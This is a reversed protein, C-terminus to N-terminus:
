LKVRTFLWFRFKRDDDANTGTVDYNTGNIQVKLGQEVEPIYYTKVKISESTNLGEYLNIDIDSIERYNFWLSGVASFFRGTEKRQADRKIVTTGYDMVGDILPEDIYRNRQLPM